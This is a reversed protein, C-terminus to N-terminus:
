LVFSRLGKFNFKQPLICVHDAYYHQRKCMIVDREVGNLYRCVAFSAAPYYAVHLIEDKTKKQDAVLTILFLSHIQIGFWVLFPNRNSLDLTIIMMIMIMMMRLECSNEMSALLLGHSAQRELKAREILEFALTRQIREPQSTPSDLPPSMPILPTMLHVVVALQPDAVELVNLPTGAASSCTSNNNSRSM